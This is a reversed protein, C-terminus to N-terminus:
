VLTQEQREIAGPRDPFEVESTAHVVPKASSPRFAAAVVVGLVHFFLAPFLGPHPKERCGFFKTTMEPARGVPGGSESACKCEM